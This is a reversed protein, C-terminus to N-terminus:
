PKDGGEPTSSPTARPVKRKLSRIRKAVCERSFAHCIKRGGEIEKAAWEIAANWVLAEERPSV